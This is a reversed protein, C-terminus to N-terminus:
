DNKSKLPFRKSKFEELNVRRSKPHDKWTSPIYLNPYVQRYSEAEIQGPRTPILRGEKDLGFIIHSVGGEMSNELYYDALILSVSNSGRGFQNLAEEATRLPDEGHRNASSGAIFGSENRQKLAYELAMLSLDNNNWYIPATRGWILDKMGVGEPIAGEKIPFIFFHPIDYSRPDHIKMSDPMKEFDVLENRVATSAGIVLPNEYINREKLEGVREIAKRNSGDVVFGQVGGMNMIIVKGEALIDAARQINSISNGDLVKQLRTRKLFYPLFDKVRGILSDTSLEGSNQEIGIM